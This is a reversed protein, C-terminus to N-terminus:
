GTRGDADLPVHGSGAAARAGPAPDAGGERSALFDIVGQSASRIHDIMYTQAAAPNGARIVAIVNDHEYGKMETHQYVSNYMLLYPQVSSQIRKITKRLHQRGSIEAIFDHFETHRQIWARPDLRARDLLQNLLELQSLAAADFRPVAFRVALGELVARMEFLEEVEASTLKTVVARRNPLITVLGEAELQRLAERVPMRSVSLEAAVEVPNLRAGGAMDGSLIRGRLHLYVHQEATQFPASESVAM